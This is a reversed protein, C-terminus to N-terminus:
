VEGNERGKTAFKAVLAYPETAIKKKRVKRRRSERSLNLTELSESRM